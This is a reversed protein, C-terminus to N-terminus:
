KARTASTTGSRDFSVRAWNNAIAFAESFKDAASLMQALARLM